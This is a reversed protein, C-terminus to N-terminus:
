ISEAKKFAEWPAYGPVAHDGMVIAAWVDDEDHVWCMKFSHGDRIYLGEQWESHQSKPIISLALENTCPQGEYLYVQSNGDDAKMINRPVNDGARAGFSCASVAFVIAVIFNKLAKM